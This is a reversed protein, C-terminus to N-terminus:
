HMCDLLPILCAGVLCGLTAHYSYKRYAEPLLENKVIFAMAGGALALLFSIINHSIAIIIIGLLAGLPTFFSIGFCTLIIRLPSIGAMTLPAATAMGEPINHLGIALAILLGLTDEAAYGVAIAIGEPLDHLAIGIAILYGMKLYHKRKAPQSGCSTSSTCLSVIFDLILMLFLGGFFGFSAVLANGYVLASPILDLIVVSLMVGGAMGLLFALSKESLHGTILVILAGLLTALGAIVSQGIIEFTM